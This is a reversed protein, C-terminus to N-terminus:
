NGNSASKEVSTSVGNVTSTVVSGIAKGNSDTKFSVHVSVPPPTTKPTAAVPTVPTVPTAPKAPEAPSKNNVSVVPTAPTVPEAPTVPTESVVPVVPTVPNTVTTPTGPKGKKVYGGYGLKAVPASYSNSGTVVLQSPTSTINISKIPSGSDVVTVFGMSSTQGSVGPLGSATVPTSGANANVIITDSNVGAVAPNLAPSAPAAPSSVPAAATVAVPKVVVPNVVVPNVVVVPTPAVPTKVVPHYYIVPPPAVVVVVPTVRAPPKAVPAAPKATPTPAVPTPAVPALVVPTPAVPTEVVPSAAVPTPAVPAPVVPAPAAVVPIVPAPAPPAPPLFIPMVPAPEPPAPPAVVPIVPAPAPPAPPAVVPIVPAPAPVVPAAAVPEAAPVTDDFWIPKFWDQQAELADDGFNINTANNTGSTEVGHNNFILWNDTNIGGRNLIYWSGNITVNNATIAGYDGGVDLLITIMAGDVLTTGTHSKNYVMLRDAHIDKVQLDGQGYIDINHANITEVNVIGSAMELRNSASIEGDSFIQSNYLEFHDSIKIAGRTDNYFISEMNDTSPLESKGVSARLIGHNTFSRKVTSGSSMLNFNITGNRSEIFGTEGVTFVPGIFGIDEAKITGNLTISGATPTFASIGLIDFSTQYNMFKRADLHTAAGYFGNVTVRSTADFVMGNPNSLYVVGNSNITGSITSVESSTVRNLTASTSTPVEFNVTENAGVSFSAWDIVSRDTSQRITTTNGLSTITATGNVVSGGSPLAHVGTSGLGAVLAASALLLTKLGLPNSRNDNNINNLSKIRSSKTM